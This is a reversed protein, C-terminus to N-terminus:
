AWFGVKLQPCTCKLLRAALMGIHGIDSEKSFPGTGLKNRDRFVVSKWRKKPDGFHHSEKTSFGKLYGRQCDFMAPQFGWWKHIIKGATFM